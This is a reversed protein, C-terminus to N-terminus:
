PDFERAQYRRRVWSECGSWGRRIARSLGPTTPLSATHSHSIPSRKRRGASTCCASPLSKMCTRVRTERAKWSEYSNVSHPLPRRPRGLSRLTRAVCWKAIRLREGGERQRIAVANEFSELAAAYEGQDHLAWGINNYLSGRWGHARPDASREALELAKRNWELKEEQLAAIAVMHAADVADYDFAPFVEKV